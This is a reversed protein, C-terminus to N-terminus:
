LTNITFSYPPNDCLGSSLVIHNDCEICANNEKRAAHRKDIPSMLFGLFTGCMEPGLQPRHAATMGM